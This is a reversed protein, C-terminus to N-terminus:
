STLVCLRIMLDTSKIQHFVMGSYIGNETFGRDCKKWDVKSTLQETCMEGFSSDVSSFDILFLTWSLMPSVIIFM